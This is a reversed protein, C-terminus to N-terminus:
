KRAAPAPTRQESLICRPLKGRHASPNPVLRRALRLNTNGGPRQGRKAVPLPGSCAPCCAFRGVARDGLGGLPEAAAVAQWCHNAEHCKRDATLLAAALVLRPDPDFMSM